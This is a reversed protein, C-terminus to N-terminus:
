LPLRSLAMDVYGRVTAAADDAQADVLLVEVVVTGKAALARVTRREQPTGGGADPVLATSTVMVAEQADASPDAVTATVPVRRGGLAAEYRGCSAALKKLSAVEAAADEPTARSKLGVATRQAHTDSPAVVLAAAAQDLGSPTSPATLPACSAPGAETLLGPVAGSKQAALQGGDLVAGGLRLATKAAAATGVLEDGTFSRQEGSANLGPGGQGSSPPVQVGARCGALAGVALLASVAAVASRRRPGSLPGM